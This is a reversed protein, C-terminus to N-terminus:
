AAEIPWPLKPNLVWEDTPIAIGANTIGPPKKMSGVTLKLVPNAAMFEEVARFPLCFICM